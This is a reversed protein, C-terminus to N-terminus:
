ADTSAAATTASLLATLSLVFVDDFSTLVRVVLEYTDNSVDPSELFDKIGLLLLPVVLEADSSAPILLGPFVALSRHLGSQSCALFLSALVRRV